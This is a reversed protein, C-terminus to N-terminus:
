LVTGTSSIATPMASLEGDLSTESSPSGSVRLFSLRQTRSFDQLVQERTAAQGLPYLDGINGGGHFLIDDDGIARALGERSYYSPTVTHVTRLGLRTLSEYEGLWIAADGPNRHNPLNLLAVKSGRPLLAGLVRDIEFSLFNVLDEHTTRDLTNREPRPSSSGPGSVAVEDTGAHPPAGAQSLYPERL